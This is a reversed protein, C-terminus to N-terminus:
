LGKLKTKIDNEILFRYLMKFRIADPQNELYLNYKYVDNQSKIIIKNEAGQSPIFNKVSGNVPLEGKFASYKLIIEDVIELSLKNIIKNNIDLINIFGDEFRIEGTIIIKNPRYGLIAFIFFLLLFFYSLYLRYQISSPVVICMIGLFLLALITYKTNIYKTIVISFKM